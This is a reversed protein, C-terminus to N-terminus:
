ALTSALVSHNLDRQSEWAIQPIFLLSAAAAVGCDHRNTTFKANLYTLLYTCFLLLNKLLLVPLLSLGFVKLFALPIWTYLPPQPGYGWSLKQTQVLQDAEDRDASNSILLRLVIQIAFYTLTVLLVQRPIPAGSPNVSNVSGLSNEEPARGSGNPQM